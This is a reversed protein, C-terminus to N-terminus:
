GWALGKIGGQAGALVNAPPARGQAGQVLGQGASDNVDGGAGVCLHVQPQRALAQAAQGALHHGVHQGGKRLCRADGQVHVHQPAGIVVV